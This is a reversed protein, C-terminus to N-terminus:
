GLANSLMVLSDYRDAAKHSSLGQGVGPRFSYIQVMVIVTVICDNCNRFIYESESEEIKIEIEGEM